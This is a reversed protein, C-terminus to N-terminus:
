NVEPTIKELQNDSFSSIYLCFIEIWMSGRRNVLNTARLLDNLNILGIEGGM